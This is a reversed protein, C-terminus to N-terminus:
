DIRGDPRGRQYDRLLKQIGRLILARGDEDHVLPHDAPLTLSVGEGLGMEVRLAIGPRSYAQTQYIEGSGAILEETEALSSSYRGSRGTIFQWRRLVAHLDAPRAFETPDLPVPPPVTEPLSTLVLTQLRSRTADALDERIDSLRDGAHQRAKIYLLQLLHRYAYRALRREGDPADMLDNSIYYRITRRNIVGSATTEPLPELGLSWVFATGIAALEDVSGSQWHRWARLAEAIRIEKM